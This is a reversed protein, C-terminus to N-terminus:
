NLIYPNSYPNKGKKPKSELKKKKKPIIPRGPETVTSDEMLDDFNWEKDLEEAKRKKLLGGTETETTNVEPQNKAKSLLEVDLM